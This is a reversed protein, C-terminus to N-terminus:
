RRQVQGADQEDCTEEGVLLGKNVLVIQRLDLHREIEVAIDADHVERHGSEREEDFLVRFWSPTVFIVLTMVRYSNQRLALTTTRPDKKVNGCKTGKTEKTDKTTHRRVDEGSLVGSRM